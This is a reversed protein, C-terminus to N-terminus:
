HNRLHDPTAVPVANTSEQIQAQILPFFEGFDSGLGDFNALLEEVAKELEFEKGTRASLRISIRRLSSVIGDLRRYSGLWDDCLIRDLAARAEAPLHIPHARFEAYVRATFAELPEPSYRDWNLALFHDYFM